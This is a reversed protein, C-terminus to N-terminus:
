GSWIPRLPNCRQCANLNIIELSNGHLCRLDKDTVDVAFELNVNQMSPVALKTTNKFPGACPLSSEYARAKLRGTYHPPLKALVLSAQQCNHMDLSSWLSPYKTVANWEQM